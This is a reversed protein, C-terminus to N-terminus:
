QVAGLASAPGASNDSSSPSEGAQHRGIVRLVSATNPDSTERRHALDGPDAVMKGLNAQTACGNNTTPANDFNALNDRTWDGCTPVRVIHSRFAIEVLSQRDPRVDGIRSSIENRRVGQRLAQDKIVSSRQGLVTTDSGDPFVTMEITGRGSKLYADFYEELQSRVNESISSDDKAFEVGVRAVVPKIDLHHRVRYDHSKPNVYTPALTCAALSIASVAISIAWLPISRSRTYVM